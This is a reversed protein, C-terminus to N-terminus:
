ASGARATPTRTSGSPRRPSRRREGRGGPRDGACLDGLGVQDVRGRGAVRRAEVEVGVTPCSSSSSTASRTRPTTPSASGSGDGEARAWEHDTSYRLDDPVNMALSGVPGPGARELAFKLRLLCRISWCRAYRARGAGRGDRESPGEAWVHTVPEEPDPLVLAGATRGRHGERRRGPRDRPRRAAGRPEAHGPGQQEWPTSWRRDHTSTCRRSRGRVLKSLPEGRRALMDVLMVLRPRPTTPPCSAPGSSGARDPQRRLVVGPQDALEMLHASSLKTWTSRPAPRRASRSRRCDPVAVPLAM